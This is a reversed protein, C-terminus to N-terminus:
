LGIAIPLKGAVKVYTAPYNVVGIRTNSTSELTLAGGSTVFVPTGQVTTTPVATTGTSVISDFEFTGDIAVGTAYTGIADAKDNGVGFGKPESITYPGVVTDNTGSLGTTSELAVGVVGNQVALTYKPTAAAFKWLKVLAGTHSFVQGTAVAM